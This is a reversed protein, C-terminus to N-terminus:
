LHGYSTPLHNHPPHRRQLLSVFGHRVLKSWLYYHRYCYYHCPRLWVTQFCLHYPQLLAYLLSRPLILRTSCIALLSLCCCDYHHSLSRDRQQAHTHASESGRCRLNHLSPITSELLSRRQFQLQWIQSGKWDSLFPETCVEGFSLRATPKPYPLLSTQCHLNHSQWPCAGAPVRTELLVDTPPRRREEEETSRAEHQIPVKGILRFFPPARNPYPTHELFPLL